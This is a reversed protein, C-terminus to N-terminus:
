RAREWRSVKDRSFWVTARRYPVFDVQPSVTYADYPGYYRRGYRYYRNYGVDSYFGTSYVPKSGEYEWIRTSTQGDAGEYERSPNGWALRVAAPSMGNEIRGQRVLDQHKPSLAHFSGPDAQIRAEPTSPACSAFLACLLAALLLKMPRSINSSMEM